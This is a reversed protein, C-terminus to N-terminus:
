DSSPLPRPQQIIMEKDCCVFSGEGAKTVLVQAGCKECVFRKGLQNPM